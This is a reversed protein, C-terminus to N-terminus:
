PTVLELTAGTWRYWRTVGEFTELRLPFYGPARDPGRDVGVAFDQVDRLELVPEERPPELVVLVNGGVRPSNRAMVLTRGGAPETTAVLLDHLHGDLTYRHLLARVECDTLAHISLTVPDFNYPDGDLFWPYRGDATELIGRALAPAILPDPPAVTPVRRGNV